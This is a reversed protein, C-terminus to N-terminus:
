TRICPFSLLHVYSREGSDTRLRLESRRNRSNWVIDDIGGLRAGECGSIGLTEQVDRARFDVHGVTRVTRRGFGVRLGALGKIRKTRVTREDLVVRRAEVGIPLDHAVMRLRADDRGEVRLFIQRADQLLVLLRALVLLIVARAVDFNELRMRTGRKEGVLVIGRDVRDHGLSAGLRREVIERGVVADPM